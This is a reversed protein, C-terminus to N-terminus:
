PTLEFIVGYYGDIGRLVTSGYLNGKQDLVLNAVPTCGEPGKFTHLVTYTWKGKPKPALKYIVGCDGYGGSTTTGYLNGAADMVVGAGPFWGTAGPKFDYLITEQWHGNAGKTLKFVTGYGPSGGVETTGYLSGSADMYLPYSGPTVGDKGNDHFSHLIAEKWKGGTAPKLKYVTGYGESGCGNGGNGGAATTGYLSGSADLILGAYPGGGDGKTRNFFHLITEKWDGQEPTLEFLTSGGEPATGYLNGQKDMVVGASPKYGDEPNTGFSYLVSETWGSSGYALEFVTGIKYTGGATTTGYLHGGAGITVSSWPDYGDQGNDEFDHLVTETWKGNAHPTLKFVVGCGGTCGTGSGGAAATGYLIGNPGLTVSDWPGDGDAGGTFKHLVKYKVAAHAAACLFALALAISLVRRFDSKRGSRAM